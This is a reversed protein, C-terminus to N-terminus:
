VQLKLEELSVGNPTFIIKEPAYGAALGLQVEQISVTDLGAGQERLLQLVAINDLAKVAYNLRLRKVKVFADTLRKYQGVITQADYVYVPSGFDQAVALLDQNTM